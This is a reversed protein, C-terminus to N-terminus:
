GVIAGMSAPSSSATLSCNPVTLPMRIFRSNRIRPRKIATAVPPTANIRFSRASIPALQAIKARIREKIEAALAKRAALCPLGSFAAAKREM